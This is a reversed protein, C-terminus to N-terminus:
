PPSYSNTLESLNAEYYFRIKVVNELYVKFIRVLIAFLAEMLRLCLIKVLIKAFPDFCKFSLGRILVRILLSVSNIQRRIISVKKTRLLIHM